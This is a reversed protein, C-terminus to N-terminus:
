LSGDGFRAHTHRAHAVRRLALIIPAFLETGLVAYAVAAQISDTPMGEIELEGVRDMSQAVADIQHEPLALGASELAALGLELDGVSGLDSPVEWALRALLADARPTPQVGTADTALQLLESMTPPPDDVVALVQQVRQISLGAVEVLARVLRLREVHAEGYQAQTASTREGAPLLGERLYYKITAVPVETRAALESIRM